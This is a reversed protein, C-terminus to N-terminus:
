KTTVLGFHYPKLDISNDSGVAFGARHCWRICQEVTPRINLPPGRPTHSDRVWHIVGIKGGQRLVRAAERLLILPDELHLINFLMVYDISDDDLGSGEQLLDRTSSRVNTLKLKQSKEDVIHIMERDIDIAHMAGQIRQAAPITFTGYGCAFDAADVVKSDIQMRNLIEEVDFFSSWIEDPPMGSERIRGGLPVVSEDMPLVVQVSM